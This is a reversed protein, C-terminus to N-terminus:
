DAVSARAVGAGELRPLGHEELWRLIRGLSEEVRECDSHVTVEPATPREYPDSIGTFNQLEGRLARAYLGKPDRRILEELRCDVLVEVFPAEHARRIEERVARYPSIAATIAVIGNRSLLRAVFGIRRINIDRDQKSFGLGNSLNTRIDDGDLVEVRHGRAVLVEKVREALTSKGAGSLGTFWLTLGGHADVDEPKRWM